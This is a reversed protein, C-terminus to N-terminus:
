SPLMVLTEGGAGQAKAVPGRAAEGALDVDDRVGAVVEEHHGPAVSEPITDDLVPREPDDERPVHADVEGVLENDGAVLGDVAAPV